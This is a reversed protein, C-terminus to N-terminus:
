SLGTIADLEIMAVLPDNPDFRSRSKVSLVETHRNAGVPVVSIEHVELDVLENVGDKAKREDRVTYAFSLDTLRRGKLLGFVKKGVPDDLDLQARIRLGRDDEKADLVYGVNHMPNSADHGYLLPIHNGSDAWEKLNPEFAGRVVRDGVSDTDWTSAYAEIIGEDLGDPKGAAKVKMPLSHM